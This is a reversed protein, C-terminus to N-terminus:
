EVNFEYFVPDSLEESDKFKYSGNKVVYVKVYIKEGKKLLKNSLENKLYLYQNDYLGYFKDFILSENKIFNPEKSMFVKCIQNSRNDEFNIVVFFRFFNLKTQNEFYYSTDKIFTAEISKVKPAVYLQVITDKIQIIDYNRVEVYDFSNRRIYERDKSITEKTIFENKEFRLKYTANKELKNFKYRGGYTYTENIMKDNQYLTVKISDKDSVGNKSGNLVDFKNLTYLEGFLDFTKTDDVIKVCNCPTEEQCSNLLNIIFLLSIIKLFTKM